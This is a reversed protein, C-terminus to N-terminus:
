PKARCKPFGWHLAVSRSLGIHTQGARQVSHSEGALHDRDRGAGTGQDRDVGAPRYGGSWGTAPDHDDTALPHGRDACASGGGICRAKIHERRGGAGGVIVGRQLGSQREVSTGTASMRRCCSTRRRPRGTGPHLPITRCSTYPNGRETPKCMSGRSAIRTAAGVLGPPEVRRGAGVLGELQWDVTWGLPVGNDMLAADATASGHTVGHEDGHDDPQDTRGVM